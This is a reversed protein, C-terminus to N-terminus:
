PELGDLFATLASWWHDTAEFQPSHGGEHIVALRAGHIAAALRESPELFTEDQEGVLVLTPLDLTRLRELRDPQDVLQSAMSAYMAPASRVLKRDSFEKHAPDREVLALYAPTDLPSGLEDMAARLAEMGEERAVKQALSILEPDIDGVPGHGTDMLVLADFREPAALVAHQVVMGGMSHGLVVATRWGLADILAIVDHGFIPLSYASEDDPADSDGHGRLDPAVAHWGRAAFDDLWPTFDEKAAGYGHVLLLPRGGTGAEAIALEVEGVRVRRQDAM